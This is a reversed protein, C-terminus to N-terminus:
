YYEGRQFQHIALLVSVPMLALGLVSWTNLIRLDVWLANLLRYYPFVADGAGTFSALSVLFSAVLPYAPERTYFGALATLAVGWLSSLFLVVFLWVAKEFDIPFGATLPFTSRVFLTLVTSLYASYLLIPITRHLLVRGKSRSLGIEFAMTGDTLPRVLILSSILAIGVFAGLLLVRLGKTLTDKQVEAVRYFFDGVGELTRHLSANLQDPPATFSRQTVGVSPTGGMVYWSSGAIFLPLLLMVALLSRKSSVEVGVPKM